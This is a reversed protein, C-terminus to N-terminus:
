GEEKPKQEKPKAANREYFDDLLTEQSRQKFTLYEKELKPPLKKYIGWAIPKWYVSHSFTGGPRTRMFLKCFGRRKYGPLPAMEGCVLLYNVHDERIRNNLSRIEPICIISTMGRSRMTDFLVVIDTSERTSHKSSNLIVSGEDFFNVPSVNEKPKSLKTALDATSYIYNFELTFYPDILRCLRYGATSKGSGPIGVVAVVNQYNAKIRKNLHRAFGELLDSYIPLPPNDYVSTGIRHMVENLDRNLRPVGKEAM